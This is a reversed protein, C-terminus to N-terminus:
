GNCAEGLRDLVGRAEGLVEAAEGPGLTFMSPPVPTPPRSGTTRRGIKIRVRGGAVEEVEVIRGDVVGYGINGAVRFGRSALAKLCVARCTFKVEILCNYLISNCLELLRRARGAPINAVLRRAEENVSVIRSGRIEEVLRVARPLSADLPVYAQVVLYGRCEM